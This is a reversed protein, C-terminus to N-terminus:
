YICGGVQTYEIYHKQLYQAYESKELFKLLGIMLKKYDKEISERDIGDNLQHHYDIIFDINNKYADTTEMESIAKSADLVCGYSFLIAKLKNKVADDIMVEIARHKDKKYSDIIGEATPTELNTFGESALICRLDNLVVYLFEKYRLFEGRFPANYEQDRIYPITQYVLYKKDDIVTYYEGALIHTLIHNDYKKTKNVHYKFIYKENPNITRCSKRDEWVTEPIKKLEEDSVM